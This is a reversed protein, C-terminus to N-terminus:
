AMLLEQWRQHAQNSSWVEFHLQSLMLPDDLLANKQKQSLSDPGDQLASQVLTARAARTNAPVGPRATLAACLLANVLPDLVAQNFGALAKGNDNYVTTAALESPLDVEEPIVFLRARRFGRGLSVRSSFVSIPISLMLSGVIPLLWWLFGPELWYVGSGWVLGLVTHWGHRRCAEGWSTEADERPPSKWSIAWGLFAAVVFRTHFLMRVPALLMSFLLEILMSVTLRLGGGFERAGKACILVVSLIKPLFLLTATATFLALAREPHWEPWVPFLQGPTVFYEPAILTHMALLITSLVLSLFWLPASLYAMVGTVFVARHVTHMGSALFLRFNMLNGQCWRRDRKLEDLLNPPMEEYSGALDYAIWVGWGARRMLAAEVFDHSLIEGALSGEGPLPALACHQMFPQLRIIANHGWYHSEGLQWYHLGATFLPGYVRTSFQQIRAYLTDRGAARPATQIIGATPNSEMLRVLTALCTGSMVSDADLVIMYRYNAGWRRCFDDINGSKRKVRRRRHRYFIRGFGGVTRCLSSWADLEATCIDSDGSDSLVFFDFHDLEGSNAVSEYTARLGAFVRTVDENCIPMVIATRADAAIPGPAADERSIVYRDTGRMLVLFGAMATWFGASVWCFLLAFLGLTVMELPKAGHYPLVASMFYSALATQALMLILLVIRRMNGRLTSKHHDQSDSAAPTQPEPLAQAGASSRLQKKHRRPTTLPRLDFKKNARDVWRVLPNLTGWPHAVIPTRKLPPAIQVRTRGCADTSIAPGSQDAETNPLGFGLQLRAAVSGYAPSVDPLAAGAATAANEALAQHLAALPADAAADCRASLATRQEPTLPLRDLYRNCNTPTASEHAQDRVLQATIHLEM